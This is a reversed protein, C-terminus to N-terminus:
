ARRSTFFDLAPGTLAERYMSFPVWLEPGGLTATGRFGEGTVGIVTFPRGNLAIPQGILDQM